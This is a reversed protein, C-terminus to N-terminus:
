LWLLESADRGFEIGGPRIDLMFLLKHEKYLELFDEATPEDKSPGYCKNQWNRWALIYSVAYPELLPMLVSSWWDPRASSNIGCETIALLKHNDKAFQDFFALDSKLSNSFEMDDDLQYAECGMMDVIDNGPYRRLFNEMSWNGYLNSSFSWIINTPLQQDMYNHFMRWLARFEEDTCFPEGWWFWGTNYEHFPRFIFPVSRGDELKLEKLFNALKVMRQQFREHNKGGPLISRVTNPDSVDWADGNTNPNRAHWSFAIVGGNRYHRIAAAKISDFPVGFYNREDSVELGSLEFGMVAPYDGVLEYTDSRGSEWQWTAGYFTDDQHGYMVGRLYLSDLRMFLKERPTYVIVGADRKVCGTMVALAAVLLFLMRKM